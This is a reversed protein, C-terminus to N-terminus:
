VRTGGALGPFPHTWVQDVAAQLRARDQQAAAGLGDLRAAQRTVEAVASSVAGLQESTRASATQVHEIREQLRRRM